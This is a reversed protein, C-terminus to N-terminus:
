MKFHWSTVNEPITVSCYITLDTPFLITVTFNAAKPFDYKLEGKHWQVAYGSDNRPRGDDARRYFEKEWFGDHLNFGFKTSLRRNVM